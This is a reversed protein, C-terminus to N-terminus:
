WGIPLNTIWPGNTSTIVATNHSKATKIMEPLCPHLLPEGWGWLIVLSATHGLEDLLKEFLGPPMFGKNRSLARRGSPYLPCRLDCINTPEIQLVSPLGSVRPRPFAQSFEAQALSKMQRISPNHLAIPTMEFEIKLERSILARIFSATKAITNMAQPSKQFNGLPLVDSFM